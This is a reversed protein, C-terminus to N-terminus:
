VLPLLEPTILIFDLKKTGRAYTVTTAAEHHQATHVNILNCDSAISSVGYKDHGMTENADMM